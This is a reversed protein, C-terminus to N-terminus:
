QAKIGARRAVETWTKFESALFRAAAEPTNQAPTEIAAEPTNQAPTEINMAAFRKQVEPSAIAQRMAQNIRAVLPQPTGAPVLAMYWGYAEFDRFEALGSERFTPVDPLTPLRDRATVAIPRVSGKAIFPMTSPAPDTALQVRGAIVEQLAAGGGRFPIHAVKLGGATALFHEFTFHMASGIGASAYNYAGPKERILTVVEKLTRAPFDNNAVLIYSSRGVVAAPVLDSEPDFNMQAVQSKMYALSSTTFLITHGDKPGKAVHSTGLVSGAGTRNEVVVPKGLQRSMEDAVIRATLDSPGGAAFPVVFQVPREPWAQAVAQQAGVTLLAAAAWGLTRRM